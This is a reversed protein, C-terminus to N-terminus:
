IKTIIWHVPRACHYNSNEEGTQMFHLGPSKLLLCVKRDRSFYSPRGEVFNGDPFYDTGEFTLLSELESGAKSERPGEAAM